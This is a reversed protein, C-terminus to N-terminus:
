RLSEVKQEEIDQRELHDLEETLATMAVHDRTVERERKARLSQQLTAGVLSSSRALKVRIEKVGRHM